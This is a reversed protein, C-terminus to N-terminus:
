APTFVFRSVSSRRISASEPLAASLPTGTETEAQQGRRLRAADGDTGGPEALRAGSSRDVDAVQALDHLADTDDLEIRDVGHRAGVLEQEEAPEPREVPSQQVVEHVAPALQVLAPEVDRRQDRRLHPRQEGRAPPVAELAVAAVPVDVVGGHEVLHAGHQAFAPRQRRAVHVV